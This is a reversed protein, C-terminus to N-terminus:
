KKRTSDINLRVNKIARYNTDSLIARSSDFIKLPNNFNLELPTLLDQPQLLVSNTYKLRKEFPVKLVPSVKSNDPKQESYAFLMIEANNNSPNIASDTFAFIETKSNYTKGGDGDKLAYIKFDTAPLHNFTFNGSGNPKTLYDPKTKLVATDSLNRYLMVTITSDPLGSEALLVKGSLTLSDIITGTSFTYTFNKLVNGEHVDKIANGFDISYTTNSLLSDKFRISITKLNQAIVPNNKQLPSIILNSQLDQIEIYEDFTLSIKNGTFNVTNTAPNAKTLVPPLSDIPGGTPASIQACSFNFTILTYCCVM